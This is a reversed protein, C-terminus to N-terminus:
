GLTRLESQLRNEPAQSIPMPLTLSLTTAALNQITSHATVHRRTVLRPRKVRKLRLTGVHVSAKRVQRTASRKVLAM